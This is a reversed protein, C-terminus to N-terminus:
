ARKLGRVLGIGDGLNRPDLQALAIIALVSGVEATYHWTIKIPWSVIEVQLVAVNERGEDTPKVRRYSVAAILDCDPARTRRSTFEKM